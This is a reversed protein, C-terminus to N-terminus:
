ARARREQGEEKAFVQARNTSSRWMPLMIGHGCPQALVLMRTSLLGVYWSARCRTHGKGHMPNPTRRGHTTCKRRESPCLTSCKPCTWSVSRFTRLASRMLTSDHHLLLAVAQKSTLADWRVARRAIARLKTANRHLTPSWAPPRM